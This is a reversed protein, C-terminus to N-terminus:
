KPTENRELMNRRHTIIRSPSVHEHATKCWHCPLARSEARSIGMTPYYGLKDDLDGTIVTNTKEEEGGTIEAIMTSVIFRYWQIRNAQMRYTLTNSVDYSPEEYGLKTGSDDTFVPNTEEGSEGAVEAVMASVIFSDWQVRNVQMWYSWTNSDYYLAGRNVAYYLTIGVTM